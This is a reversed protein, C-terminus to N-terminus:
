SKSALTMPAQAAKSTKGIAAHSTLISNPTGQYDAGSPFRVFAAIFGSTASGYTAM